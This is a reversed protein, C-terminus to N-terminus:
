KNKYFGKMSGHRQDFTFTVAKNKYKFGCTNVEEDIAYIKHIPFIKGTFDESELMEFAKLGDYMSTVKRVINMSRSYMTCYGITNRESESFNMKSQREYYGRQMREIDMFPLIPVAQWDMVKYFTDIKFDSPYMDANENFIPHLCEPLLSKSQPPLVSLLQEMPKLPKGLTFSVDMNSVCALDVMFPAFHYPYYWDWSPIDYFYYRYVWVMGKIYERCAVLLEKESKIGMKEMYFRIKGKENDLPFEADADFPLNMKKRSFALNNRKEVLFGNEHKAVELFFSKLAKFNVNGSETIHMRTNKFNNIILGTIKEVANVRIELSPTCPLFDNGMAFCLFVWDEIFRKYDFSGRINQRFDNLILKKLTQINVFIYLNNEYVSPDTQLTFEETPLRVVPESTEFSVFRKIEERMIYVRYDFLTLGLFILDADPSYIVHTGEHTKNKRIYELIKQEGEGPVKYSSYIVNLHKWRDDESIKYRILEEIFFHLRAMFETGPTISNVDFVEKENQILCDDIQVSTEEVKNEKKVKINEKLFTAFQEPCAGVGDKFYTEGNEVSERAKVFRRSRQQNLKARPAVGDVSIYILKRLKIRSMINDMFMNLNSYLQLDTQEMTLLEKNCCPHIVANFDLYLNDTEIQSDKGVVEKIEPYKKTLWRYLSPVGM